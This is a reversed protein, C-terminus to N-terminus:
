TRKELGYQFTNLSRSIKSVRYDYTTYYEGTPESLFLLTDPTLEVENSVAMMDFSTDKGFIQEVITGVAPYISLFIVSPNSYTDIIEGTLFGDDDVDEQSSVIHVSWLKTKNLNLTRLNDGESYVM